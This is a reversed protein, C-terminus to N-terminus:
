AFHNAVAQRCALARGLDISPATDRGLARLLEICLEVSPKGFSRVILVEPPVRREAFFTTPSQGALRDSLFLGVLLAQCRQVLSRLNQLEM